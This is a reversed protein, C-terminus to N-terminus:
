AQLLNRQVADKIEKWKQVQDQAAQVPHMDDLFDIPMWLSQGYTVHAPSMGSLEAMANNLALEILTLCDVWSYVKYALVRVLQEITHNQCETQGDTHPHFTSSFLTKMGLMQQVLPNNHQSALRYPWKDAVINEKALFTNHLVTYLM